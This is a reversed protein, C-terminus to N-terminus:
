FFRYSSNNQTLYTNHAYSFLCALCLVALFSFKVLSKSNSTNNNISSSTTTSALSSSSAASLAASKKEERVEENNNIAIKTM